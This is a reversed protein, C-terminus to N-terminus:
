ALHQRRCRRLQHGGEVDDGAGGTGLQPKCRCADPDRRLQQPRSREQLPPLSHWLFDGIVMTSTLGEAWM